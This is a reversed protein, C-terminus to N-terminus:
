LATGSETMRSVPMQISMLYISQPLTETKRRSGQFISLIRDSFITQRILRMNFVPYMGKFADQKENM